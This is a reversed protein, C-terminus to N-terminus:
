PARRNTRSLQTTCGYLDLVPFLEVGRPVCESQMPVLHERLQGNIFVEFSGADTVRLGVRDGEVLDDACVKKGQAAELNNVSLVVSTKTFDVVWSLPVEDAVAGMEGINTPPRATVGIGFDNLNDGDKADSKREDLTVELFPPLAPADLAAVTQPLPADGLVVLEEDADELRRVSLGYNLVKVGDGKLVPDFRWAVEVPLDPMQQALEASLQQSRPIILKTAQRWAPLWTGLIPALKELNVTAPIEVPRWAWVSESKLLASFGRAVRSLCGIRTVDMMMALVLCWAQESMQGPLEALPRQSANTDLKGPFDPEAVTGSRETRMSLKLQAILLADDPDFASAFVSTFPQKIDLDATPIQLVEDWEFGEGGPEDDVTVLLPDISTVYGTEWYEDSDRRQVRQGIVFSAEEEELFASSSSSPLSFVEDDDLIFDDDEPLLSLPPPATKKHVFNLWPSPPAHRHSGVYPSGSPLMTRQKGDLDHHSRWQCLQDFHGYMAKPSPPCHLLAKPLGHRLAKPSPPAHRLFGILPSGRPLFADESASGVAAVNRPRKTLSDM